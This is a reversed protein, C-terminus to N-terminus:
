SGAGVVALGRAEGLRGGSARENVTCADDTEWLTRKGPLLDTGDMVMTTGDEEFDLGTAFVFPGPIACPFTLTNGDLIALENVSGFWLRDKADIGFATAQLGDGKYIPRASKRERGQLRLVRDFTVPVLPNFTRGSEGDVVYIRGASDMALLKPNSLKKRQVRRVIKGDAPDYEWIRGDYPERGSAVHGQDAILLKGNEDFLVDNVFGFSSGEGDPELLMVVDGTVTDFLLVRSVAAVAVIGSAADYAMGRPVFLEKLPAKKVAVRTAKLTIRLAAHQHSTASLLDGPKLTLPRARADITAGASLEAGAVPSTAV